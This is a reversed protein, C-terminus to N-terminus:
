KESVPNSNKKNRDKPLGGLSKELMLKNIKRSFQIYRDEYEYGDKIKPSAELWIDLEQSIASLIESKLEEKTMTYHIPKALKM